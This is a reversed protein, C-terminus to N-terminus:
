VQGAIFTLMSATLVIFLGRTMPAAAPTGMRSATTANMRVRACFHTAYLRPGDVSKSIKFFTNVFTKRNHIKLTNPCVVCNLFNVRRYMVSSDFSM